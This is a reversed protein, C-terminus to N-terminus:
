QLAEKLSQPWGGRSGHDRKALRRYVKLAKEIRTEMVQMYNLEKIRVRQVRLPYTDMTVIHAFKRGAKVLLATRVGDDRKYRVLLSSM